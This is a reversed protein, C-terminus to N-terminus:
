SLSIQKWFDLALQHLDTGKKNEIKWPIQSFVKLREEYIRHLEGKGLKVLPRPETGELQLREWCDEFPAQLYVFGVKRSPKFLDYIMQSLTGGGLALVGKGDEKLWGELAQREWLRFKDWGHTEILAALEKVKHNKMIVHDLDDFVWEKEPATFELERLFSSKGAGSFGAILIKECKPM